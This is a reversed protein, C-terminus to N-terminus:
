ALSQPTKTSKCPYHSVSMCSPRSKRPAAGDQLQAILQTRESWDPKPFQSYARQNLRNQLKRRAAPNTVGAWEEEFGHVESHLLLELAISNGKNVLDCKATDM